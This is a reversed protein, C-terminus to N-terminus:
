EEGEDSEGLDSEGDAGARRAYATVRNFVVWAIALISFALTFALPVAYVAWLASFFQWAIELTGSLDISFTM